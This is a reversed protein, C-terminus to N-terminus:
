HLRVAQARNPHQNAVTDPGRMPCVEFETGAGLSLSTDFFVACIAQSTSGARVPALCSAIEGGIKFLVAEMLYDKSRRQQM